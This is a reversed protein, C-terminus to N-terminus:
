EDFLSSLEVGDGGEADVICDCGVWDFDEGVDDVTELLEVLPVGEVGLLLVANDLL